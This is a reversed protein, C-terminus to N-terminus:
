NATLKEEWLLNHELDMYQILYNGQCVGIDLHTVGPKLIKFSEYSKIAKSNDSKRVGILGKQNRLLKKVPIDIIIHKTTDITDCNSLHDIFNSLSKSVLKHSFKISIDEIDCYHCQSSLDGYYILEIFDKKYPILTEEIERNKLIQIKYYYLLTDAYVKTKFLKLNVSKNNRKVALLNYFPEIVPKASFLILVESAKIKLEKLIKKDNPYFSNVKVGKNIDKKYYNFDGPIDINLSDNIYLHNQGNIITGDKSFFYKNCSTLVLLDIIFYILVFNRIGNQKM